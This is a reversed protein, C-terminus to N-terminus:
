IKPRCHRSGGLNITQGFMDGNMLFTNSSIQRPARPFRLGSIRNSDKLSKESM